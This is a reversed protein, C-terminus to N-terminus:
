FTGFHIVNDLRRFIFFFIYFPSIFQNPSNLSRPRRGEFASGIGREVWFGSLFFFIM